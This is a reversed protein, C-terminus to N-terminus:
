LRDGDFEHRINFTRHANTIISHTAFCVGNCLNKNQKRSFLCIWSCLMCGIPFRAVEHTQTNSFFDSPNMQVMIQTHQSGFSSHFLAADINRDREWCCVTTWALACVRSPQHQSISISLSPDIWAINSQPLVAVLAVESHSKVRSNIGNKEEEREQEFYVCLSNGNEDIYVEDHM